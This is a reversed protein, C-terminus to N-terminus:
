LLRERSFKDLENMRQQRLEQVTTLNKANYVQFRVQKKMSSKRTFSSNIGSSDVGISGSSEDRSM